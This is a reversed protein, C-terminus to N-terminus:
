AQRTDYISTIRGGAIEVTMFPNKLVAGSSTKEVIFVADAEVESPSVPVRWESSVVQKPELRTVSGHLEGIDGTVLKYEGGNIQVMEHRAIGPLTNLVTTETSTRTSHSQLARLASDKMEQGTQLIKAFEKDYDEVAIRVSSGPLTDHFM